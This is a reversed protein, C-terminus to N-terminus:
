VETYQISPHEFKQLPHKGAIRDNEEILRLVKPLIKYVHSNANIRGIDLAADMKYNFFYGCSWIKNEQDFDYYYKNGISTKIVAGRHDLSTVDIWYEKYASETM